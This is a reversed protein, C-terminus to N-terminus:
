LENKPIFISIILIYRQFYYIRPLNYRKSTGRINSFNGSAKYPDYDTLKSSSSRSTFPSPVADNLEGHGSGRVDLRTSRSSFNNGYRLSTRTHNMLTKYDEADSADLVDETKRHSNRLDNGASGAESRHSRM